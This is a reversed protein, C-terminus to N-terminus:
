KRRGIRVLKWETPYDTGWPCEIPAKSPYNSPAKMTCVCVGCNICKFTKMLHKKPCLPCKELKTTM